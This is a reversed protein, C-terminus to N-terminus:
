ERLQEHARVQKWVPSTASLAVSAISAAVGLGFLALTLRHLRLLQLEKHFGYGLVIGAFFGGFHAPNNVPLAIGLLVAFILYRTM